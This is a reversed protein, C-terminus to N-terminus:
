RTGVVEIEVRRDPQLCAILKVSQKGGKCDAPKTVPESEGRGVASVKAPDIRGSSVLYDKVAQARQMSLRQNYAPSGLRDTHGIVTIVEFSSGQLEAAFNDLATRGEPRLASRDFTFLSEASFSVRRRVPPAPPPPPPPPAVAVVPPPPPPPAAVPAPAVYPEAMPRPAPASERGFPFVLSVSFMNVSGKNGVADDVRYREAEGRVIFRDSLAYQVGAGVKWNTARQSPNPNTVTVAGTGAFTDSAKASQIGGRLLASWHETLPLTGVLDLNFGSLKIDGRLTGAPVTTSTFGFKGLQFFGAEVGINRNIQYGGFLKYATDSEDRAMGTTTLGSALLAATIRPEDIKARAQGLGIGGYYYGGEQQAFSSAAALSGLGALSILRLAHLTTTM